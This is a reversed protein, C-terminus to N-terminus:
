WSRKQQASGSRSMVTERRVVPFGRSPNWRGWSNVSSPLLDVASVPAITGMSSAM